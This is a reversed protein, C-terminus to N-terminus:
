RRQVFSKDSPIMVENRTCDALLVHRARRAALARVTWVGNVVPSRGPDIVAALGAM